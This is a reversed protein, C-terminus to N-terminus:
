EVAVHPVDTESRRSVRIFFLLPIAALIVLMLFKFDDLYALMAAQATLQQNLM